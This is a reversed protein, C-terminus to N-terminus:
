YSLSDGGPRSQLLIEKEIQNFNKLAISPIESSIINQIMQQQREQNEWIDDIQHENIHFDRIITYKPVKSKLSRITEIQESTLFTSGRRYYTKLYPTNM